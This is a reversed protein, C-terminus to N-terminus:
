RKCLTFSKKVQENSYLKTSQQNLLPKYVRILDESTTRRSMTELYRGSVVVLALGIVTTYYPTAMFPGRTMLDVFSLLTGLSISSSILTNMNPQGGRLWKWGDIHIWAIYHYQAFLTLSACFLHVICLISAPLRNRGFKSLLLGVVQIVSACSVLQSFSAKLRAIEEKSKLVDIIEQPSRPGLEVGYGLDLVTRKISDKDLSPTKGIITAQQLALSVRVEDVQPHSKLASEVSSSCASCTLGSLLLILNESGSPEGRNVKGSSYQTDAEDDNYRIENDVDLFQCVKVLQGICFAAIYCCAM